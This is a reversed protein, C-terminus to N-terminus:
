IREKFLQFFDPPKQQKQFGDEPVDKERKKTHFFPTQQESKKGVRGRLQPPPIWSCM